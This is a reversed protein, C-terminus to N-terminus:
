EGLVPEYREEEQGSLHHREILRACTNWRLLPEDHGEPRLQEAREYQEMARRLWDYAMAGGGPSTAHLHARARRECVIGLYYARKYEDDVRDLPERALEVAGALEAGFQDSRALALQILAAQNDPDAALVDLCISEAAAPENLLRYREAKQLAAPIGARSIRKLEFM